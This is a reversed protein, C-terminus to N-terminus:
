SLSDAWPYGKLYPDPEIPEGSDWVQTIQGDRQVV